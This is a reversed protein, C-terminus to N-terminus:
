NFHYQNKPPVQSMAVVLDFCFRSTFPTTSSSSRNAQIGICAMMSHQTSPPQPRAPESPPESPCNRSVLFQLKPRGSFANKCGFYLGLVRWFKVDVGFTFLISPLDEMKGFCTEVRKSKPMDHDCREVNRAAEVVIM